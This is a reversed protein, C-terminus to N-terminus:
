QERVEWDYDMLVRSKLGAPIRGSKYYYGGVVSFVAATSISDEVIYNRRAGLSLSYLGPVLPLRPIHCVIQGKPPVVEFDQGTVNTDLQIIGEGSESIEVIALINKLSKGDKCVYNMVISVDEGSSLSELEEGRANQFRVGTFRFNGLGQRDRREALSGSSVSVVEKLYENIVERTDGIMKIRGDELLLTRPCLNRVADMNHSIFLVTRGGASADKMRGLCKKQFEVDGVALVEDVLLIEPKLHAAIAFALRVSMGSSYRKVPTDLFEEVGSFDVIEDFRDHIEKRTMGLIAGNFQINERGTLEPHFGTGVELLAGVKGRLVVRGETPYTIRSLIKLLTSKGAGNRGIIGLVDGRNLEFSIDKLAWFTEKPTRMNRITKVPSKIANALSESLRKYAKDAGIVYRKSVGEIQIVPKEGSGIM